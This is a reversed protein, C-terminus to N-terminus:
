PNPLQNIIAETIKELDVWIVAGSPHKYRVPKALRQANSLEWAYVGNEKYGFNEALTEDTAQHKDRNNTLKERSLPGICAVLDATGIVKGSKSQILAIRERFTVARSRMEWTKKGDLIKALPEKKIILGRM